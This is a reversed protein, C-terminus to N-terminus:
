QGIILNFFEEEIYTVNLCFSVVYPELTIGVAMVEAVQQRSVM